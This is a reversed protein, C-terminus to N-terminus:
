LIRRNGPRWRKRRGAGSDPRRRGKAGVPSLLAESNGYLSIYGDGHYIILLNGFGRLWEAYVAQGVTVARLAQGEPGTLNLWGKSRTGGGSEHVAL